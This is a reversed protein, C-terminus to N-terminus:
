EPTWRMADAGPEGPEDALNSFIATLADLQRRWESVVNEWERVAEQYLRTATEADTAM